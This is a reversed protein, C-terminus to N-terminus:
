KHIFIKGSKPFLSYPTPFLSCAPTETKKNVKQNGVVYARIVIDNKEM